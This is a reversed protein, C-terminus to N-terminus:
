TDCFLVYTVIYIIFLLYFYKYFVYKNEVQFVHKNVYINCIWIIKYM